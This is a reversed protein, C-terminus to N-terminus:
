SLACVKGSIVTPALQQPDGVLVYRAANFKLPILSSLEIAQAAEDIIVTDFELKELLPHGAGALTSCIVDADTLIKTSEQRRTADLSRKDSRSQDKLRQHKSALESRRKELRTRQDELMLKRAANDHLDRIEAEVKRKDAKVSNLDNSVTQLETAKEVAERGGNLSLEILANLTVNQVSPNVSSDAGM